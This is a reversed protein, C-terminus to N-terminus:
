VEVAGARGRVADTASGNPLFKELPIHTLAIVGVKPGLVSRVSTVERQNARFDSRSSIEVKLM